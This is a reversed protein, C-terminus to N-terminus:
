IVETYELQMHGEASKIFRWSYVVNDVDTFQTNTSVLDATDSIQKQAKGFAENITDTDAIPANVAAEEYGTIM